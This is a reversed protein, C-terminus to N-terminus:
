KHSMNGDLYEIADKATDFFSGSCAQEMMKAKRMIRQVEPQVSAFLLTKNEKAMFETLAQVGSVDVLPVGRMSLILNQADSQVLISILADASGFFIPGTLYIVQTKEIMEVDYGLKDPDIDSVSVDLHSIRVVFYLVSFTVGAIIAITLDFVATALMTISFKAIAWRFRRSFIYRINERDNMRWATVILIGGLSCLPIKAMLPSLLFMSLLLVAGHVIGTIRTAQGSKIGVGTRALATASPVGGFFPLVINSIGQVILERDGDIREDKMRGAAVGCLLSEIMCMAAVSVAPLLLQNWPAAMIDDFSIRNAHILTQPITGVTEIPLNFIMNATTALVIGVLSGPVKIGWKKPWLLMLVIVLLGISVAWSNPRFGNTILSAIREIINKGTTKVGFFNDIQSLAIIIAIGSTFGAIVPTPLLYVLKGMKFIGALILIVGALLGTIFVGKLGFRAALPLLIAAMTGTPGSIQFSVGSLAGIILSAVIATILGSAADAGSSVGFALALPLAVAAVTIGAMLDKQFTKIGYGHFERYLKEIFESCQNM